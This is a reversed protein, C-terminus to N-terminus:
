ADWTELPTERKSFGAAMRAVAPYDRYLSSVIGTSVFRNLTQETCEYPFNVLYPLAKLVAFFLQADVTVVMQESVLTPDPSTALSELDAFRLTKRDRNKLTVFRSTVLHMRGPLVPLPRLEGDSLDGAEATVRFAVTKVGAPATIRFTENAGGGPKVTFPRTAAGASLGFAPLLSRNTEPDLVDFTLRGSLAREGANNVVVKMEAVDGERLFRPVYPRVMLEKVSQAQRTVSGGRLDRTVAHVWVNWSTVSDPVTFEISASGDPGTLLQPTWFATESFDSRLAVPSSPEQVEAVSQPKTEDKADRLKGREADGEMAQGAVAENRAAKMAMAPAPSSPLMGGALAGPMARRGPGGIGYGDVFKLRDPQPPSWSPLGPLRSELHFTNARGLTFRSQPAFARNPYLALPSPPRHPAFADLSRDYMYALLEAAETLPHEPTAGRVTVRWSEKQGPRLRDRFTAFAVTLERDDWPVFLQQSQQLPQHDRVATLTVGFGGRDAELIPIEILAADKGATLIRRSVLKGARAVDVYLTQGPIGSLALLRATGGVRISSSEALLLAPFPLAVKPSAVVFDQSFSFRAGFDDATEYRLRYAGSALRGLDLAAEGRTDHVADGRAVETGDKWGRMWEDASFRTEWRPRLRDGPTVVSNEGEAVPAPADPDGNGAAPIAPQDAPLVTAAPPSLRVLRWTGKGARPTGDLDTRLLTALAPAGDRYFATDRNMRAEVAVTGLRFRREASRTEGGEDTVDATAAYRWTVGTANKAEREDAKPTFTFEFTGDDRLAATGTGVTQAESRAGGRAWWWWWPWVPERTVRWRISGNVVPLGFYYRAEGRLTAPRNLRLAQAPEKLTVEFTPRKYEEVRVAASGGFSTTVHWSGLLRGAPIAFEGAATGYANTKAGREEVKQGNGDLLSVTVATEPVTRFRAEASRGRYLVAKWLIKQLPRYISRDTYVLATTTEGPQPTRYLGVYSPDLAPNAGMRGVVFYSGSESRGDFAALGDRGATAAAVRRHGKQWDYQWLSITAGEAPSGTAGSVARAEVGGDATSRVALVLDTVLVTAGVIQNPERAFDKRQSAVVAYLGPAMAPLTAFTRHSAYDPTPPLDVSWASAPTAT